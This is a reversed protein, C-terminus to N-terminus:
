KIIITLASYFFAVDHNASLIALLRCYEQYSYCKFTKLNDM